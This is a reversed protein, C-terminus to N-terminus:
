FSLTLNHHRCGVHGNAQADKVDDILLDNVSDLRAIVIVPDTRPIVDSLIIHHLDALADLQILFDVAFMRSTADSAPIALSLFLYGSTLSMMTLPNILILM